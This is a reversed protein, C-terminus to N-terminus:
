KFSKRERLVWDEPYWLKRVEGALFFSGVVIIVEGAKATKQMEKIATVPDEIIEMTTKRANTKKAGLKQMLAKATKLLFQPAVSKREETKLQTFVFRKENPVSLLPELIAQNDKKTDSIAVLFHFKVAKGYLRALNSITSRIKARNHAGDLIVTPWTQKGSEAVGRQMIEFRCPLRTKAIGREIAEESAGVAASRAIARVLEKNYDSYNKQRKIFSADTCIAGVSKCTKKFFAQLSPRQESTFFLSGKKIIGAKDYAIERLTKGLIDTHDYDINTIATVAPSQIINTADYRGGLGVELVAWECKRRKFYLLSLVVFLEFASPIGYISKEAKPIYPKIFNVIQVFEDPAIYQDDVKIKEITTTVYPSTFLGVSGFKKNGGLERAANLVEQTMTSVTGKGATGTIHIVKMGKEPNGILDLFHQTRKLFFNPDRIKDGAKKVANRRISRYSFSEVLAVAERYAQFDNSQKKM